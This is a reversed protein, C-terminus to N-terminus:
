EDSVRYRDKERIYDFIHCETFSDDITDLAEYIFHASPLDPMITFPRDIVIIADDVMAARLLMVCFRQRETLAPNRHHAIGEMGYRKLYQMVMQEAEGKRMNHHYQKILAINIIVDLNSILPAELSLLGLRQRNKGM